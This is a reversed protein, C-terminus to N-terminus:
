RLSKELAKAAGENATLSQRTKSLLASFTADNKYKDMGDKVIERGQKDSEVVQSMFAKDFAAGNKTRLKDLDKRAEKIAKDLHKDTGKMEQDYGEQMGGSGGTGQTSPSALDVSSVEISKSDAWSRLDSLHQKRDDVLQQAFQRVEPNQTRELAINGMEIQKADFLALKGVYKQREAAAAGIRKGEEHTEKDNALADGGMMPGFMLAAALAAIGGGRNMRAM